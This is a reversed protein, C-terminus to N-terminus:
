PSRVVRFGTDASKGGPFTHSRYAFRCFRAGAAYSGGRQIRSRGAPPGAPDPIENAPYPGYWDACWEWVNGTMDYLGWANPAFSKVPLTRGRYKGRPCGEYPSRGDFDAEDTFLCAGGTFATESGARAAYEWEAETPLRYASTKERENLKAVFRLCDEYSVNAVPLYEGGAHFSSPNSGMVAKWQAQTVETVSMYFGLSITVPHRTENPFRYPEAAPSGMMFTGSPIHVFEMGVSNTFRPKPRAVTFVFVFLLALLALAAAVFASVWIKQRLGQKEM